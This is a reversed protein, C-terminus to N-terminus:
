RAADTATGELRAETGEKELNRFRSFRSGVEVKERWEREQEQVMVFVNGDLPV